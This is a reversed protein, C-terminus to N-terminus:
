DAGANIECGIVNTDSVSASLAFTASGDGREGTKSEYEVIQANPLIM